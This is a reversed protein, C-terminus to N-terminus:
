TKSPIGDSNLSNILLLVVALTYYPYIDLKSRLYIDSITLFKGYYLSNNPLYVKCITNM